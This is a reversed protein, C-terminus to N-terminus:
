HLIVVQRLFDSNSCHRWAERAPKRQNRLVSAVVTLDVMDQIVTTRPTTSVTNM